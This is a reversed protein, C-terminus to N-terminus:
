GGDQAVSAVLLDRYPGPAHALAAREGQQVVRGHDLVALLGAREITTLRHAVLVGTRGALLRESAAVVRAETLPDMRATAEDLVVVQVDRVLLRAFAVLQEEGASLSTGGPGLLTDLGDPLGAVWDDLRLERVAAEVDSRPVDAFLAVNEALTGALIETRQTVVGVAARLAQLDLDRVDVGGVLVAGRPPEVARSLLSALTSKGSGTRGVLAVTEGAPVHLDVGDLAFTGEAYSFHLDRVEIGVPGAPLTRGGTPEPEVALMQRIRTLAGLGEQIDPLHHVLNDVQGVFLATVLFLTVLRDVGLDGDAALAAGAVAVGALLSALVLGARRLMRAEVVLVAEFKRHVRASREALRRIAFSQGLSTRLDDRAAVSEEFAAAHDTWAMEEIVKRRAIEGLMPRVIFWAVAGLVPFLVWAPWWTLGAVVWMPLVGVVTRGAGWLQRRVLTGVAHTDDDVRDLVEGVAQETLTALPQHLAATLLDGRLRGEARDVVGAWVVQGVTDLLAAGVVCAALLQLTATTPDEALWGAIVTGLAAGVAGVTLALLAVVAQPGRLRRWDLRRAPDPSRPAAASPAAHPDSPPNTPQETPLSADIM